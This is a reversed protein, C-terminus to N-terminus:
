LNELDWLECAKHYASGGVSWVSPEEKIKAIKSLYYQWGCLVWTTFQSYSLHPLVEHEGITIM